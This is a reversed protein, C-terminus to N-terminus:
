VMLMGGNIHINQGTIYASDDTSLFYVLNAIDEPKGFRSMPIRSLYNQKQQDNLNETMNTSIFGPSIVNVNINRKAVESALRGLILGDADVVHWSRQIDGKKPTYTSM